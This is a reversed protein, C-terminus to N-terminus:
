RDTVKKNTASKNGATKKRGQKERNESGEPKRGKGGPSTTQEEWHFVIRATEIDDYSLRHVAEGVTVQVGADDVADLRAVFRREGEVPQRVKVNIDAGIQQTFHEPTRLKREIGPSTVELLYRQDPFPDDVDLADSIQQSLEGITDVDIGGNRDVMIRLIGSEHEIDYLSANGQEVIPLVIERVRQV